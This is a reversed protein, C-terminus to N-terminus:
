DAKGGKGVICYLHEETCILIQNGSVAPSALTYSNLKNVGLIEFEDGVIYLREGNTTPTPVDSGYDSSWLRHSQSM